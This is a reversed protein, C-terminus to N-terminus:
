VNMLLRDRRRSVHIEDRLRLQFNTEEELRQIDEGAEESGAAMYLDYTSRWNRM